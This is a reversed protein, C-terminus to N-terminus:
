EEWTSVHSPITAMMATMTMMVMMMMRTNCILFSLQRYESNREQAKTGM